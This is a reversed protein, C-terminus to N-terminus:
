GEGACASALGAVASRAQAIRSDAGRAAASAFADEARGLSTCAAAVDSGVEANFRQVHAQGEFYYGRWDEPYADTFRDAAAALAATYPAGEAFSRTLDLRDNLAELYTVRYVALSETGVEAPLGAALARGLNDVACDLPAATPEGRRAEAYCAHGLVARAKACEDGNRRCLAAVDDELAVIAAYDRARQEEILTGVLPQACAAVLAVVLFLAPLLLCRTRM